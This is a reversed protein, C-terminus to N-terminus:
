LNVVEVDVGEEEGYIKRVELVCVQSDDEWIIGNFADLVSKALNDLDPKKIMWGDNLANRKKASYSSPIPMRFTLRCSLPGKLPEDAGMFIRAMRAVMSKYGRVKMDEYAHGGRTFRPRSQPIPICKIAFKIPEESM